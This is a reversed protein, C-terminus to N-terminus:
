FPCYGNDRATGKADAYSKAADDAVQRSVNIKTKAKELACQLLNVLQWPVYDTPQVVRTEGYLGRWVEAGVLTQAIAVHGAGMQQFTTPPPPMGIPAAKVTVFYAWMAELVEKQEATAAEVDISPIDEPSVGDVVILLDSYSAPTALALQGPAGGLVAAGPV